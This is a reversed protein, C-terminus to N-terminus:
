SPCFNMWSGLPSTGLSVAPRKARKWDMIFSTIQYTPIPAHTTTSSPRYTPLNEISLPTYEQRIASFFQCIRNSSELTSLNGEIHDPLTFTTSPNDGPHAAIRKVHKIWSSNKVNVLDTQKTLLKTCADKLKIKVEKKLIKYKTSNWNSLLQETQAWPSLKTPWGHRFCEVWRLHLDMARTPDLRCVQSYGQWFHNPCNMKYM